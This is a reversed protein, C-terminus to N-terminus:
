KHLMGDRIAQSGWDVVGSGLGALADDGGVGRAAQGSDVGVNGGVALLDEVDVVGRGQVGGAAHGVVVLQRDVAEGLDADGGRGRGSVRIGEIVNEVRRRGHFAGVEM